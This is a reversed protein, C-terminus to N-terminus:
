PGSVKKGFNLMKKFNGMFGLKIGIETSETNAKEIESKNKMWKEIKSVFFLILVLAILGFALAGASWDKLFKLTESVSLIATAVITIGGSAGMILTIILAVAWTAIKNESFPFLKCAEGMIILLILWVGILMILFSLKIPSEAGLAIGTLTNLQDPLIIEKDVISDTKEKFGSISNNISNSTINTQAIVIQILLIALIIITSSKKM